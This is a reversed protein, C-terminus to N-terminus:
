TITASGTIGAEHKLTLTRAGATGGIATSMSAPLFLNPNSSTVTIRAGTTANNTFNALPTDADVIDFNIVPETVQTFGAVYNQSVLPTIIRPSNNIAKVLVSTTATNTGMSLGSANTGVATATLTELPAGTILVGSTDANIFGTNPTYVLTALAANLTAESGTFSLSKTGLGTVNTLNAATATSVNLTGYLATLTYTISTSGNALVAMKELATNDFYNAQAETFTVSGPNYLGPAPKVARINAANNSNPVVQSIYYVGGFVTIADTADFSSGVGDTYVNTATSTPLTFKLAGTSADIIKPNGGDSLIENTLPNYTAGTSVGDGNLPNQALATTVGTALDLSIIKGAYVPNGFTNSPHTRLIATNNPGQIMWVPLITNTSVSDLTFDGITNNLLNLKQIKVAGNATSPVIFISNGDSSFVLGGGVTMPSSTSPFLTTPLALVSIVKKYNASETPDTSNIGMKRMWGGNIFYLWNNDPSVKMGAYNATPISTLGAASGVGDVRTTTATSGALTTVVGATDISRILNGDQVYIIGRNDATAGRPNTFSASSGTGDTYGPNTSSSTRGALTEVSLTYPNPTVVVKFSKTTFNTGDSVKVTVVATGTIGTKTTIALTFNPYTGAVTIGNILAPNDNTTTVVVGTAGQPDNAVVAITPRAVPTAATEATYAVDALTTTITPALTSNAANVYITKTDT